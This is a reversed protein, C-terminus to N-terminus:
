RNRQELGAILHRADDTYSAAGLGTRQFNDLAARAYLLADGMRGVNGLLIAIDYRTLGAGFIDGRAEHHHIAQQYHRLAQGTDGARSYINGLQYETRARHEHDGAPFLDMAQRYHRLAANLHELLV